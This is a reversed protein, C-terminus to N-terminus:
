KTSIKILECGHTNSRLKQRRDDDRDKKGYVTAGIRLNPSFLGLRLGLRLGLGLGLGPDSGGNLIPTNSRLWRKTDSGGNVSFFGADDDETAFLNKIHRKPKAANASNLPRM